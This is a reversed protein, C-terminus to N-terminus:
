VDRKQEQLTIINFYHTDKRPHGCRRLKEDWYRCGSGFGPSRCSETGLPEQSNSVRSLATICYKKEDMM